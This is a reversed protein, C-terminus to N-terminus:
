PDGGTMIAMHQKMQAIGGEGAEWTVRGDRNADTGDLIQRALAEIARAAPAAEDASKAKAVKESEALIAKSWTVVNGASTAVHTAHLKIKETAGSSHAALHIHTEVAEAAKVVGYGKGPGKAEVAPDIANRVHRVHLQISELSSLDSVALGAHRAAIDAEESLITLLGVGGPTGNIATMVHGIHIQAPSPEDAAAGAQLPATLALFLPISAPSMMSAGEEHFDTV